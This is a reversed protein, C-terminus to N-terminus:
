SSVWILQMRPAGDVSAATDRGAGSSQYTMTELYDSTGNLYQIGGGQLSTDFSSAASVLMRGVATAKTDTGNTRLRAARVGSTNAVYVVTYAIWYFGPTAAVYRSTNSVTSHGNDRDLDETDFNVGTWVNNPITQAVTQRLVAAPRALLFNGADRVNSNMFSATVIEGAVWTRMVPVVGM